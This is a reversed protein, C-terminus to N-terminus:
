NLKLLLNILYTVDNIAVTGDKNVDGTGIATGHLLMNILATVDNIDVTGNHDVDGTQYYDVSLVELYAGIADNECRAEFVYKGAETYPLPELYLRWNYWDSDSHRWRYYIHDGYSSILSIYYGREEFPTLMIGPALTMGLYDVKFTVNMTPSKEKGIAQAYTELVYRGPTTFTIVDDYERWKTWFGEGEGNEDLSRWRYYVQDERPTLTVDYAMVMLSADSRPMATLGPAATHFVLEPETANYDKGNSLSEAYATLIMLAAALITFLSKM